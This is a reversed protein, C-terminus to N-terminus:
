PGCVKPPACAGLRSGPSLANCVYGYDPVSQGCGFRDGVLCYPACLGGGDPCLDCGYDSRCGGDPNCPAFNVGEGVIPECISALYGGDAAFVPSCGQAGFTVCAVPGNGLCSVACVTGGDGPVCVDGV